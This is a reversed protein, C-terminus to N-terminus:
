PRGRYELRYLAVYEVGLEDRLVGWLQDGRAGHLTFRTPLTVTGLFRGETDFVDYVLRDRWPEPGPDAPAQGPRPEPRDEEPVVEGAAAVRVWIRGDQDAQVASFPAKTAPIAPGTWRWSPDTSRMEGTVQHERFAREAAAVPVPAVAREVRVVRGDPRHVEIAYRTAVGGIPYGDPGITWPVGPSFPVGTRSITRSEGSEMRATLLAPEFDWAPRVITDVPTGDPGVRVFASEMREGMMPSVAAVVYVRGDRLARVQNSTFFGGGMPWSDLVDGEAAYVTVRSNRPDSVLLRGQPDLALGSPQALEGPGGGSRGFSRLHRGEADFVRVARAQQDLVFLSGDAAMTVGAVRGFTYEEAGDLEGIRLVPELRVDPGWASGRETRVIITDGVTDVRMVLDGGEAGSGSGCGITLIALFALSNRTRYGMMDTEPNHIM